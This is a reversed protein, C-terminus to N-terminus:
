RRASVTPSCSSGAQARPQPQHCLQDRAPPLPLHPTCNRPPARTATGTLLTHPTSGGGVRPLPACRTEQCCAAQGLAPGAPLFPAVKPWVTAVSTQLPRPPEEASVSVRRRRTPEADRSFRSPSVPRQWDEGEGTQQHDSRLM